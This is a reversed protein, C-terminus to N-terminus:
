TGLNDYLALILRLLSLSLEVPITCSTVAMCYFIPCSRVPINYMSIRSCTNIVLLFCGESKSSSKM